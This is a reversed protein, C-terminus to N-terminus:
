AFINASVAENKRMKLKEANKHKRPIRASTNKESGRFRTFNAIKKRKPAHQPDPASTNKRPGWVPWFDFPPTHPTHPPTPLGQMEGRGIIEIYVSTPVRFPYWSPSGLGLGIFFLYPSSADTPTSTPFLAEDVVKFAM